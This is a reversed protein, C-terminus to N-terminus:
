VSRVQRLGLRSWPWRPGVAPGSVGGWRRSTGSFEHGQIMPHDPCSESAHGDAYLRWDSPCISVAEGAGASARGAV